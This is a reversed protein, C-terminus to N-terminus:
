SFGSESALGHLGRGVREGKRKARQSNATPQQSNATPQQSNSTPHKARIERIERIERNARGWNRSEAKWIEAKQKPHQINKGM